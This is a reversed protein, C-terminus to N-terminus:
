ESAEEAAEEGAAEEAVDAADVDTEVAVTSEEVAVRSAQMTFIVADADAVYEVGDIIPLDAITIPSDITLGTIDVEISAPIANALAEIDVSDMTQLVMVSSSLVTPENVSVVSVSVHQKESMDIAYFDAHILTRRVPHRQVDRLLVNHSTGDAVTIQILQSAGGDRIAREFTREPVQLSVAKDIAGYVVVPILGQRRLQRVKRGSLTRPQAELQLTSM